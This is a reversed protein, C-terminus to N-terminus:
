VGDGLISAILAIVTLGAYVASRAFTGSRIMRESSWFSAKM